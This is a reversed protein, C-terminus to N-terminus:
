MYTEGAGTRSWGSVYGCFDVSGFRSFCRDPLNREDSAGSTLWSREPGAASSGFRDDRAYTASHSPIYGNRRVPLHALRHRAPSECTLSPSNTVDAIKMRNRM